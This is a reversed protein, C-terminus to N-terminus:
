YLREFEEVYKKAIDKDHIILINEDNKYDGSGTPNMSGTIVTRNDLIFVKHHMTRPNKDLRVDLGFDKFRNYQSYETGSGRKEFLGLIDAKKNFLVSDGIPESTFSFQMFYISKEARNIEKIIHNSCADEPCFYNEIEKNNFYIVPYKVKEGEGFKGGWLEEFEENYNKALYKSHIVLMNNNNAYAESITPNFSGTLVIKDDIVCFKNHSYQSSTDKKVGPGKIAGYNEDDVVLKVDATKSKSALVGTVNKLDIGFFACHLSNVASGMLNALIGACDETPCFYVEIEKSTESPITDAVAEGTPTKSCGTILLLLLYAIFIKKIM